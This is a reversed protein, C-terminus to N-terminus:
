IFVVCFFIISLEILVDKKFRKVQSGNKYFLATIFLLDKKGEKRRGDPNVSDDTRQGRGQVGIPTPTPLNLGEELQTM